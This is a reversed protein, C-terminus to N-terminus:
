YSDHEGARGLGMHKEPTAGNILPANYNRKKQKKAQKTVLGSVGM